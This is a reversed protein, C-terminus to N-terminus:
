HQPVHAPLHPPSQQRCEEPVTGNTEAALLIWAWDFRVRSWRTTMGSGSLCCWSPLASLSQVFGPLCCSHEFVRSPWSTKNATEVSDRGDLLGKGLYLSRTAELCGLHSTEWRTVPWCYREQACRVTTPIPAAPGALAAPLAAAPARM